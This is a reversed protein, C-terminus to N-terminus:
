HPLEDNKTEEQLDEAANGEAIDGPVSDSRNAQPVEVTFDAATPDMAAQNAAKAAQMASRVPSICGVVCFVLSFILDRYYASAIEPDELFMRALSIARWRSVAVDIEGEELWTQCADYVDMALCLYWALVIVLVAIIASIIVGKMSERKAFVSYGKIACVVGVLGSIAAIIGIQYLVFYIVGGALAFLFAGVLGAIVNEKEAGVSNSKSSFSIAM